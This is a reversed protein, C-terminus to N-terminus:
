SLRRRVWWWSFTAFLLALVLYIIMEYWQFSWYRDIPQYTVLSRLHFHDICERAARAMATTPPGGNQNIGTAIKLAPFKNPCRGVGVLETVGDSLRSFGFNGNPGVGGSQGIVHGARDITQDSIVMDAPNPVGNVKSLSGSSFPSQFATLVHLPAILRFTIWRNFALRVVAFGALTAAMAPVSRRILVGATVGLAFAFTAFGIPVINRVEFIGYPNANVTDIPSSWWTVMLSLLGAVAVGSLGVLALKVSVWRTRSVSQTWALRYTRDELERAIMPAGWFVGILAPVVVVFSTLSILLLHDRQEFSGTVPGCDGHASCSRVVTDYVHVLTTGTVGLVVALVALLSLAVYAQVRFQRWALWLM